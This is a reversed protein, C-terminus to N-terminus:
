YGVFDAEDICGAADMLILLRAEKQGGKGIHKPTIAALDARCEPAVMRWFQAPMRIYAEQRDNAVIIVKNALKRSGLKINAKRRHEPIHKIEALGIVFETFIPGAADSSQVRINWDILLCHGMLFGPQQQGCLWRRPM